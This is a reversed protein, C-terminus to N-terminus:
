FGQTGDLWRLGDVLIGGVALEWHVHAGTSLGTSGCLGIIDGRNVFDGVQAIRETMHGYSTFLGGGHDIAIVNGRILALESMVIRGHNSARIPTGPPAGIDTGGHHGSRPGGNFSRQEGFFGSIRINAGGLPIPMIWPLTWERGSMGQYLATLRPGENELPPPTPETSPTANPDPPPPPPLYIDDVTWETRQVSIAHEYNLVQGQMDVLQTTVTTSGPPDLVGFPVFGGVGEPGPILPYTRGFVSSTGSQADSARVHITGGQFPTLQSLSLNPFAGDNGLNQAFLRYPPGDAIQQPGTVLVGPEAAKGEAPTLRPLSSGASRGLAVVLLGGSAGALFRRRSLM